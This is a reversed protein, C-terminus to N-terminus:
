TAKLTRIDPHAVPQYSPIVSVEFEEMTPRFIPIGRTALKDDEPSLLVPQGTHLPPPATTAHSHNSLPFSIPTLATMM